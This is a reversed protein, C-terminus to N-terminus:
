GAKVSARQQLCLQGQVKVNAFLLWSLYTYTCSSCNSRLLCTVDSSGSIHELNEYLECLGFRKCLASLSTCMYLECAVKSVSDMHVIM